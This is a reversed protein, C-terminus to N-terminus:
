ELPTTFNLLTGKGPHSRIMMSGNLMKIRTEMNKLGAHRNGDTLGTDFGNGDDSITIYLQSHYYHLSLETKKAEAHKIINNFAEQIIRFIILEKKADLYVPEGSVSYHICFIGTQEIRKIEDEVARLLGQEIIVEANLGKSIDSLQTITKSVLEISTDVKTAATERNNIDLTHLHLKALTLSLTINDHIERSIHQFTQEQIELQTKFLNKEYDLKLQEFDKQSSIQRKRYATLMFIIFAAMCLIVASVVILFIVIDYPEKQM